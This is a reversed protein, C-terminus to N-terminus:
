SMMMVSVQYSASPYLDTINRFAIPPGNESTWSLEFPLRYELMYGTIPPTVSDDRNWEMQVWSSGESISRLGEPPLPPATCCVM